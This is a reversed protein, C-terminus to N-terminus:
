WFKWGSREDRRRRETTWDIHQKMRRHRSEVIMTWTLATWHYLCYGALILAVAILMQIPMDTEM